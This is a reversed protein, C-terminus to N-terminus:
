EVFVAFAEHQLPMAEGLQRWAVDNRTFDESFSHAALADPEVRPHEAFSELLAKRPDECNTARAADIRRDIQDRHRRRRVVHHSSDNGIQAPPRTEIPEIGAALDRAGTHM